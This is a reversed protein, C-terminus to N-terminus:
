VDKVANNAAEKLELLKDADKHELADALASTHLAQLFTLSMKIRENFSLPFAGTQLLDHCSTLARLSGMKDQLDKPIEETASQSM